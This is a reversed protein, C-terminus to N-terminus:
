RAGVAVLLVVRASEQPVSGPTALLAAVEDDYFAGVACAGLGRATASLYLGEGILGAELMALRFDRAGTVRGAHNSLSVAVVFAADGLVEQSLGASLLDSSFEGRRTIQLARATPEPPAAADPLTHGPIAAVYRHVGPTLDAVRSTVVHVHVQGDGVFRPRADVADGLVDGLEALRVPTSAFGRVSRRRRIVDFLDDEAPAVPRLPILAAADPRSRAAAGSSIARAAEVPTLPRAAADALLRWSSLAHGLRTLELDDARPPLTPLAHAPVTSRSAPSPAGCAIALLAGGRDVEIGLAASLRADDFYPQAACHVGLARAALLLNLALHGADLGVYRTAREHYKHVSRDFTSALVFTIPAAAGPLAELAVRGDAVRTLTHRAPHYYHAGEAVGADTPAAVVYLDTPYLAGSSAAARLSLGVDSARDNTVGAAYFALSAVTHADLAKEGRVVRTVGPTPLSTTLSVGARMAPAPLTTSPGAPDLTSPPSGVVVRPRKLVGSRDYSSERWLYEVVDVRQGNRELWVQTGEDDSASSAGPTPAAVGIVVRDGRTRGLSGWLAGNLPLVAILVLSVYGLAALGTRFRQGDTRLLAAPAWRRLGASLARLGFVVHVLAILMVCYGFLYHLDFAPLDMRAVWFVGLAATAALYGLLLLAVAVDLDRRAMPRRLLARLAVWLAFAVLPSVILLAKM